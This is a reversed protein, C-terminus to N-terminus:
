RFNKWLRCRRRRGNASWERAIRAGPGPGLPNSGVEFLGLGEEAREMPGDPLVLRIDAEWGGRRYPRLTVSM